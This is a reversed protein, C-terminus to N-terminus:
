RGRMTLLSAAIINSLEETELLLPNIKDGSTKGSDKLLSLWYKSEHASKLSHNYFNAFDRKSSAAKAEMINAGISGASRLLQKGINECIYDRPLCELFKIVELAFRYSRQRLDYIKESM